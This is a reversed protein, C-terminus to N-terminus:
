LLLPTLSSAPPSPPAFNVVFGIMEALVQAALSRSARGGAALTARDLRAV